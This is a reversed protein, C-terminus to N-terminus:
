NRFILIKKDLDDVAKILMNETTQHKSPDMEMNRRHDSLAGEYKQKDRDIPPRNIGRNEYKSLLANVQM